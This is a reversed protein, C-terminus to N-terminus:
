FFLYRNDKVNAKAFLEQMFNGAYQMAKQKLSMEYVGEKYEQTRTNKSKVQFLYVGANGKVPAASFKGQATAAVAGSLAPESAGTESIFVPASFTIQNVDSVKGGKKQAEAVSKVGKIKEIIQAAKKDKLVESKLYQAVQANSKSIYGKPTIETLALVLLHDNNGCEYLPSVANKKADFLWKMAERTSRIGAINHEANSVGQREQVKYGYKAANKEMAEITQNESVFQSFKNFAASYTDKSFDISKKIVAATYKDTFGKRDLVQIIMNSTTMELNTTANLAASNLVRIYERTDKDMSPASQYQASTLWNKEGTQGYKKALAEFDAGGQLATYISDAVRRAELVDDGGVQIARFQISDALSQKAILKIVNITNDEKNEVPASVTGVAMSDLKAAIDSPFAAKTQPIGLYPVFSMSKRIVESPDAATALQSSFDAISKNLAVRDEASAVVQVDVYKIDRTETLQKFQQKLEDYKASIDADTVQVKNDNIDAYPFSVLQINSEINDNEYAKKASVPNSLLCSALLNQYKQALTQQRINKEIFTWFNHLSEYQEALQPNTSKVNKYEALFKKLMNVDFRGTQQNVFPTQTLMPNTGAKLINQMEEDTVTLGLKSAENEIISTQVFQNWVMDKVQNLEEDTLNDRGQTMKIVDQYEDLLKQFEQVDIKKGLVEGVQQREQNKTSECSRFLEEAIFAFLALGIVIVLVPGWSRIKGIAAM